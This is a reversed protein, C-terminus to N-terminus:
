HVRLLHHTEFFWSAFGDGDPWSVGAGRDFRNPKDHVEIYRVGCELFAHIDASFYDVFMQPTQRIQSALPSLLHVIFDVAGADRWQAIDNPANVEARLRILNLRAKSFADLDCQRVRGIPALIGALNRSLSM